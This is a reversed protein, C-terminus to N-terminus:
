IWAYNRIERFEILSDAQTVITRTGRFRFNGASMNPQYGAMNWEFAMEYEKQGVLLVDCRLGKQKQRSWADRLCKLFGWWEPTNREKDCKREEKYGAILALCETRASVAKTEM